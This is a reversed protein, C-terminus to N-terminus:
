MEQMQVINVFQNKREKGRGISNRKRLIEGANKVFRCNSGGKGERRAERLLAQVRAEAEQYRHWCVGEWAPDCENYTVFALDRDRIAQQILEMFAEM